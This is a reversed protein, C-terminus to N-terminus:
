RPELGSGDSTNPGREPGTTPGDPTAPGDPAPTGALGGGSSTTSPEPLPAPRPVLVAHVPGDADFLGQGLLSDDLSVFSAVLNGGAGPVEEHVGGRAGALLAVVDDAAPRPGQREDYSMGWAELQYSRLLRSRAEAFLESSGFVEVGLLKPGAIFAFGVVGDRELRPEFQRVVRDVQRLLGANDYIADLRQDSNASVVSALTDVVARDFDPARADVVLRSRLDVPALGESHRSERRRRRPGNERAAVTVSEGPPVLVDQAIVRDQKGGSLLDGALLLVPRERDVNEVSVSGDTSGVVRLRRRKLAAEATRPVAGGSRLSPPAVIPWVQVHGHPPVDHTDVELAGLWSALRAPPASGVTPSEPPAVETGGGALLERQREQMRTMRRSHVYREKAEFAQRLIWTDGHREYVRTPNTFGAPNEPELRDGARTVVEGLPALDLPEWTPRAPPALDETRGAEASALEASLSHIRGELEGVSGAMRQMRGDVVVGYALAGVAVVLSAAVAVASLSGRRLRRVPRAPGHAAAGGSVADMVRRRFALSHAHGIEDADWRRLLTRVGNLRRFTRAADESTALWGAVAAAREASLEGDLWASLDEESLPREQM